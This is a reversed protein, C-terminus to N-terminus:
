LAGRLASDIRFKAGCRLTHNLIRPVTSCGATRTRTRSLVPLIAGARGAPAADTSLKFLRGGHRHGLLKQGREERQQQHQRVRQRMSAVLQWRHSPHRCLKIAAVVYGYLHWALAERERILSQHVIPSELLIAHCRNRHSISQVGSSCPRTLQTDSCSNRETASPARDAGGLMRGFSGSGHWLEAAGAAAATSM